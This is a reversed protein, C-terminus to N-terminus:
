RRITASAENPLNPEGFGDAKRCIKEGVDVCGRSRAFIKGPARASFGTEPQRIRSSKQSCFSFM